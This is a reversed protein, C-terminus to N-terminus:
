HVIHEPDFSVAPEQDNDLGTHGLLEKMLAEMGAKISTKAPRSRSVSTPEQSSTSMQRLREVRFVDKINLEHMAM